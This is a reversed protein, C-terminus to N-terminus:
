QSDEPSNLPSDISPRPATSPSLSTSPTETLFADLGGTALLGSIEMIRTAVGLVILASSTGLLSLDAVGLRPNIVGALFNRKMKGSVDDGEGSDSRLSIMAEDADLGRIRIVGGNPLVYDEEPLRMREFLEDKDLYRVGGAPEDM